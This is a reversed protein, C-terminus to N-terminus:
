QTDPRNPWDCLMREIAMLRAQRIHEGIAKGKIGQEVFPQATVAQCLQLAETLIDGQAFVQAPLAQRSDLVARCAVLFGALMDPKRFVDLNQLIDLVAEPTPKSLAEVKALLRQVREAQWQYRLPVKLAQCQTEVSECLHLLAAWRVEAAEHLRTAADLAKLAAQLQAGQGLPAFLVELAGCNQLVEFYRGPKGSYLAKETEKFVREATLESLEGDDALRRMLTVTDEHVDFGLAALQAAFRAVRLVRLPDEVFAESVHRLVKDNLDKVGNYPDVLQDDEGRAIANITLDRRLLDQELTVAPNFDVRFGTHGRGSKRETRALAYEHKSQPHLFVPFDAGVQQYGAALMQEITSGVVVYDLDHVERGLLQDRVAGGVLYTQM